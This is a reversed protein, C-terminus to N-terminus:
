RRGRTGLQSIVGRLKAEDHRVLQARHGVDATIMQARTVERMRAASPVAIPHQGQAAYTRVADADLESNAVLVYDLVEEGLAGVVAAVHDAADYGDTEGPKTMLNCVYLRKAASRCVADAVGRVILASLVSTYLDGPGIVILDAALLSALVDISTEADPEHWVSKVRLNAPRELFRDITSEGRVIRGDEFEACLTTARETVCMVLGQVNLIDGVAKVAGQMSGTREAMATLLLNGLSHGSLTRSRSSAGASM